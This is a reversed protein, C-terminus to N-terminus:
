AGTWWTRCRPFRKRSWAIRASAAPSDSFDAMSFERSGHQHHAVRSWNRACALDVRLFKRSLTSTRCVQLVLWAALEGRQPFQGAPAPGATRGRPM